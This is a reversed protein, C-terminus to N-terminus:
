RNMMKEVYAKLDKKVSRSKALKLLEEELQYVYVYDGHSFPEMDAEVALPLTKDLTPEFRQPM